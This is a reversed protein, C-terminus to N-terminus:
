GRTHLKQRRAANLAANQQMVNRKSMKKDPRNKIGCIRILTMLRNIHWKQCEFPIQNVVMWYYILESSVIEPRRNKYTGCETITTGTMPDNMYQLIKDIDNKTLRDYVDDKVNQNITMCKIYDMLEEASPQIKNLFPKHWKSEWKSIAILSHELNIITDPGTKFEEKKEDWYEQGPVYIQLM